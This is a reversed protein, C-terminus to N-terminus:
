KYKEISFDAPACKEFSEELNVKINSIKNIIDSSEKLNQKMLGFDIDSSCSNYNAQNFLLIYDLYFQMSYDKSERYDLKDSYSRYDM